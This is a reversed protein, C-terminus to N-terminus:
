SCLEIVMRVAGWQGRTLPLLSQDAVELMELSKPRSCVEIDAASIGLGFVGNAWETHIPAVTEPRPMGPMSLSQNERGFECSPKKRAPWDDGWRRLTSPPPVAVSLVRKTPRFVVRESSPSYVASFGCGM